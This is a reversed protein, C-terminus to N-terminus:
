DSIYEEWCKLIDSSFQPLLQKNAALTKVFQYYKQEKERATGKFFLELIDDNNQRDLMKYINEDYGDIAHLKAFQEIFGRYCKYAQWNENRRRHKIYRLSGMMIDLYDHEAPTEIWKQVLKKNPTHVHNNQFIRKSNSFFSTKDPLSFGIDIKCFPSAGALCFSRAIEHKDYIITYVATIGFEDSLSQRTYAEADVPYPTTITLDIDSLNDSSQTARSGFLYIESIYSNETLIKFIKKLLDKDNM